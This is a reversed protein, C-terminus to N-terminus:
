HYYGQNAEYDCNGEPVLFIKPTSSVPIRVSRVALDFALKLARRLNLGNRKLYRLCLLVHDKKREFNLLLETRREIVELKDTIAAIMVSFYQYHQFLLQVIRTPLFCDQSILHSCVVSQYCFVELLHSGFIFASETSWNRRSEKKKQLPTNGLHNDFSFPVRQVSFLQHLDNSVCCYRLFNFSYRYNAFVVLLNRVDDNVSAQMKNGTLTILCSLLHSPRLISVFSVKEDHLNAEEDNNVEGSFMFMDKTQSSHFYEIGEDVSDNSFSSSVQKMVSDFSSVDALIDSYKEELLDDLFHFDVTEMESCLLPSSSTPSLGSDNNTDLFTLLEEFQSPLVLSSCENLTSGSLLSQIWNDAKSYFFSRLSVDNKDTEMSKESKIRSSDKSGVVCNQTLVVNHSFYWFAECESCIPSDMTSRKEISIPGLVTALMKWVIHHIPSYLSSFDSSRGCNSSPCLELFSCLIHILQESSVLSLTFLNWSIFIFNENVEVLRNNVNSILLQQFTALLSHKETASTIQHYEVQFLYDVILDFFLHSRTKDNLSKNDNGLLL